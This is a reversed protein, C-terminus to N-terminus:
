EPRNGTHRSMLFPTTIGDYMLHTMLGERAHRLNHCHDMWVGPNDAVFAVEYTEGDEVNLSDVHWPSGTAPVGDRSLVTIHHGHLHMPHVDGSDNSIRMRVIEGERVMFMPVDPYIRGNITWWLGPRGDLLGFRRGIRYDFVRAAHEPDFGLPAPTGYSLLDVRDAPVPTGEPGGEGVVIGAGPVQVRAGGEPVIVELDARAGATLTLGRERVPTPGTLDRGDIALVRYDAGAVWVPMPGPDTNIMRIRVSSGPAAPHHLQANLTRRGAYTHIVATLEADTTPGSAPLVVLPGLLGGTVQPDSVQHSHYWFTGAHTPVFRYVYDEGPLAADQTVGAVGDVGNPVELGHWHLTTGDTINENRLRVELLEGQTVTILPGPSTGNLTFGPVTTGDALRVEGQRAVLDVRVDAPRAPDAILSTVSRPNGPAHGHGARGHGDAEPAHGAPAGGSGWDPEGMSLASFQTPLRSSSWAIGAVAVLLVALCIPM